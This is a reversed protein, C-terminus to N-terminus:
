PWSRLLMLESLARRDKVWGRGRAPRVGSPFRLRQLGTRSAGSAARGIARDIVEVVELGRRRAAGDHPRCARLVRGRTCYALRSEIVPKGFIKRRGSRVARSLARGKGVVVGPATRVLGTKHDAGPVQIMPKREVISSGACDGAAPSSSKRASAANM